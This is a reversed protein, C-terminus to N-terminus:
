ESCKSYKAEFESNYLVTIDGDRDTIVWDGPAVFVGMRIGDDPTMGYSKEYQPHPHRTVAPHDGQDWWQVADVVVPRRQYKM